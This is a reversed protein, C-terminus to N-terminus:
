PTVAHTHLRHEAARRAAVAHELTPYYGVLLVRGEHQIRVRWRKRPAHWGVGKHGTQNNRYVQKNQNSQGDTVVRLNCIRNDTKDRNKHDLLGQPDKGYVYMWALRHAKYSRGNLGVYVYGSAHLWGAETGAKATGRSARWMLVGTRANYIFLAKLQEQSPLPTIKRAM